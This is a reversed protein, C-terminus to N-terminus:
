KKGGGSKKAKKALKQLAAKLGSDKYAKDWKEVASVQLKLLNSIIVQRSEIDIYFKFIAHM